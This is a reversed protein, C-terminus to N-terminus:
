LSLKKMKKSLLRARINSSVCHEKVKSIIMKLQRIMMPLFRLKITQL